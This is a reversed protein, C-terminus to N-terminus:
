FEPLEFKMGKSIIKEMIPVFMDATEVFDHILIIDNSGLFNLGREGEPVDEDVRELVEKLSKIGYMPNKELTELEMCYYTWYVDVDKLLGADIYWKYNIGKFKPQRYGLGKLFDQISQIFERRDEPWGKEVDEGGGKDGFPFRFVKAPRRVGAKKYIAEIIEDTRKIQDFCEKLTIRSFHPHNYSHNGIVFGKKIAYIIYDPNKEILSGQCFCIAPIKKSALFDIKRKM